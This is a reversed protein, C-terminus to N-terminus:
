EAAAVTLRIGNIAKIVARDGVKLEAEDGPALEGLWETGSWQVKGPSDVAIPALVEVQQGIATNGEVPGSRDQWRKLPRYCVLTVIVLAVSFVGFAIAWSLPGFFFAALAAILAAAGIFFLWFISLQFVILEVAICGIGLLLFFYFPASTM